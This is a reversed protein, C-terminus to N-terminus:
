KAEEREELTEDIKRKVIIVDDIDYFNALPKVYVMKTLGYQDPVVEMVEGIPLDKPFVGGLGSTLVKQKKEIKADFPIRKLLLARRKEDYGEILGFINENGQVYASIRNKQDLASLLQVTSTFQSAHQVKGVLGEPTIVAMDKKVGHQEGRNVIITEQWRDPNRGIVTAQIPIFDRLSEKKNLLARLRENEKKLAQVQTELAVYEELRAKLLKNEKYTNRIDNVNEFFGAVLQAPKHFILQVFGTTDKLFQEPWTLERDKLSFGILAVLIIISVLLLILRKNLFFQPM